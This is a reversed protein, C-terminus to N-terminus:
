SRVRSPRGSLHRVSISTDDRFHRLRFTPRSVVTSSTILTNASNNMIRPTDQYVRRSMPVLHM